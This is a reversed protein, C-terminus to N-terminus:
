EKLTIDDEAWIEGMEDLFLPSGNRIETHQEEWFVETSGQYDFSLKGDKTRSFSGDIIEARAQIREFTGIIELGNPAFARMAEEKM